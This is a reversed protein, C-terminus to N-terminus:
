RQQLRHLLAYELVAITAASVAVTLGKRHDFRGAAVGTGLLVADFLESAFRTRLWPTPDPALVLGAGVLLDRAGLAWILTRREGIGLAQGLARACTKAALVEAVGTRGRHQVDTELRRYVNDSVSRRQRM